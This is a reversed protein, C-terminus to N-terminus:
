SRPSDTCVCPRGTLRFSESNSRTFSYTTTMVITACGGHHYAYHHLDLPPQPPIDSM